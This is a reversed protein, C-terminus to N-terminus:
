CSEHFGGLYGFGHGLVAHLRLREPHRNLERWLGGSEALRHSFWDGQAHGGHPRRGLGISAKSPVRVPKTRCSEQFGVKAEAAIDLAAPDPFAIMNKFAAQFRVVANAEDGFAVAGGRFSVWDDFAAARLSCRV